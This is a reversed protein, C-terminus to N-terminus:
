RIKAAVKNYHQVCYFLEKGSQRLSYFGRKSCQKGNRMRSSCRVGPGDWTDGTELYRKIFQEQEDNVWISLQKLGHSRHEHTNM